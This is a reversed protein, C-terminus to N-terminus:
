GINRSKGMFISYMHAFIHRTFSHAFPVLLLLCCSQAFVSICPRRQFASLGVAVKSGYIGVRNVMEGALWLGSLKQNKVNFSHFINSDWISSILILKLNSARMIWTCLLYNGVNDILLVCAHSTLKPALIIFSNVYKLIDTLFIWM